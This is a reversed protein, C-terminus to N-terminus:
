QIGILWEEGARRKKGYVDVMDKLARIHISKKDTLVVAKRTEVVEENESPMYSGAKRVLWREGPRRQIGEADKMKRIAKVLLAQNPKIVIAKVEQIVEEERKPIYTDPGKFLYTDEPMREIGGAREDKFPMTAKLLLAANQAVMTFPRPEEQLEERPYLPFPDPFQTQTRV